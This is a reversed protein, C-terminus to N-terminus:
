AEEGGVMGEGYWGVVSWPWESSGKRTRYRRKTRQVKPKPRRKRKWRV